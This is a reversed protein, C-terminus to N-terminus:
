RPPPPQPRQFVWTTDTSAEAVFRYGLADCDKLQEARDVRHQIAWRTMGGRAQKAFFMLQRAAGDKLDQFVPTVQAARLGTGLAKSYEKSALNVVVGDGREAARADVLKRLRDGWFAYLNSGRRTRLATGMELRYPQMLDLPRLLGYLGSLIGVRDQAWALDDADLSAADLGRYVDGAFSLAAQRANDPTFPTALTQFRRHNLEALADSIHMLKKLDRPKKRRATTLLRETQDMLEPETAPLGPVAPPEVLKKAPSLLIYM